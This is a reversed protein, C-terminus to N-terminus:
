YCLAKTWAHHDLLQNPNVQAFARAVKRSMHKCTKGWQRVLQCTTQADKQIWVVAAVGHDDTASAVAQINWNWDGDDDDHHPGDEIIPPQGWWQQTTVNAVCHQTPSPRIIQSAHGTAYEWHEHRSYLLTASSTHSYGYLYFTVDDDKGDHNNDINEALAPPVIIVPYSVIGQQQQQQQVTGTRSSANYNNNNRNPPVVFCTAMWVGLVVQDCLPAAPTDDTTTDGNNNTNSEWLPVTLVLTATTTTNSFPWSLGLIGVGVLTVLLVISLGQIIRIHLALQPVLPTTTTTTTTTTPSSSRKGSPLTTLPLLRSRETVVVVPWHHHNEPQAKNGFPQQQQQQQQGPPQQISMTVTTSELDPFTYETYTQRISSLISISGPYTDTKSLQFSIPEMLVIWGVVNRVLHSSHSDKRKNTPHPLNTTRRAVISVHSMKTIVGFRNSIM